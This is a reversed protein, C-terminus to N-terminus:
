LFISRNVHYQINNVHHISIQIATSMTINVNYVLDIECILSHMIFLINVYHISTQIVISMTMTVNYIPDIESVVSHM